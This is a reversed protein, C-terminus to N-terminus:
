HRKLKKVEKTLVLVGAGDGGRWNPHTLRFALYSLLHIVLLATYSFHTDTHRFLILSTHTDTFMIFTIILSFPLTHRYVNM